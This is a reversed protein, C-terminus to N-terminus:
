RPGLKVAISHTRTWAVGAALLVLATAQAFWLRRESTANSLVSRDLSFAFWTAVLGLYVAGAVFVARGWISARALPQIALAALILAWVTGLYLGARNLDTWLENGDTVGLLHESV